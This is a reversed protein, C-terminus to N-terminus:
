PKQEGLTIATEWCYACCLRKPPLSLRPPGSTRPHNYPCSVKRGEHKWLHYASSVSGDSRLGLAWFPLTRARSVM